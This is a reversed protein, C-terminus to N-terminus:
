AQNVTRSKHDGGDGNKGDQSRISEIRELLRPGITITTGILAAIACFVAAYTFTNGSATVLATYILVANTSQGLGFARTVEM